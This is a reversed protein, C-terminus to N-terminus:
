STHVKSRNKIPLHYHTAHHSALRRESTNRAISNHRASHVNTVPAPGTSAPHQPIPEGQKVDGETCAVFVPVWVREPLGTLSSVPFSAASCVMALKTVFVAAGPVTEAAGLELCRRGAAATAVRAVVAAVYPCAANHTTYYARAKDSSLKIIYQRYTTLALASM